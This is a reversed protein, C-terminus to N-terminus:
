AKTPLTLHTYSVPRDNTNITIISVEYPALQLPWNPGDDDATQECLCAMIRGLGIGYSGMVIPREKGNSDIVTAGLPGSYKIGLKFIHGLEMAPEIRLLQGCRICHDGPGVRRLDLYEKVRVDRELNLGRIHYNRENAGTIMGRAGRLELDAYIEYELGLPGVFGAEVGVLKKIEDGSAPRIALGFRRRLKEENLERDGRILLVITRGNRIYIMTKVLRTKEVGLFGAVEEVTRKEPTHVKVVPEDHYEKPESASQAVELNAQYGCNCIVAFDEGSSSPALFEESEGEGMVGGSAEVLYYNIKCRDFIRQYAERHLSFSRDLGEEDIDFSYSDKMLFERIRVMGGRPRLEDRYKRQIQYWIQPLQRYSRIVKAAIQTVIEEHTPSLAYERDKRDKLRFMLEGYDEWRGTKVWIEKPSLASLYFEQGGIRDMEERIIRSIRTIVRWGLPLLNYIGSALPRIYGGRLLLRHSLVEAEKPNERLTPILSHSWRM